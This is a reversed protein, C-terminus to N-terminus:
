TFQGGGTSRSRCAAAAHSRGRTLAHQLPRHTARRLRRRQQRHCRRRFGGSLVKSEIRIVEAGGVTVTMTGDAARVLALRHGYGDELLLEDVHKGITKIGTRGFRALQIPQGSGPLYVLRYGSAHTIGQFVDIELRAGKLAIRSSLEVDLKFANGIAARTFIHAPEPATEALDVDERAGLIDDM